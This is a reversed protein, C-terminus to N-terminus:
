ERALAVRMPWSRPMAVQQPRYGDKSATVHICGNWWDKVACSARVSIRASGNTDTYTSAYRAQNSLVEVRTGQLPNCQSDVVKVLAYALFHKPWTCRPLEEVSGIIYSGGRSCVPKELLFASGFLESDTPTDTNTKKHELAWVAKASDIQMLNLQCNDGCDPGHLHHHWGGTMAVYAMGLGLVSALLLIVRKLM